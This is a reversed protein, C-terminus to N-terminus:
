GLYSKLLKSRSTHKLKRLAKEKIQRVRERTLEFEEGIEELTLSTKTNIGFYLRLSSVIGGSDDTVVIDENDMLTQIESNGIVDSLMFKGNVNAFIDITTSDAISLNDLSVIILESLTTNLTFLRTIDVQRTVSVGFSAQFCTEAWSTEPQRKKGCNKAICTPPGLPIQGRSNNKFAFLFLHHRRFFGFFDPKKKKPAHHISVRSVFFSMEIERGRDLVDM